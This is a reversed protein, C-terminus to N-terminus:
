GHVPRVAAAGAVPAEEAPSALRMFTGRVSIDRRATWGRRELIEAYSQLLNPWSFGRADVAYLVIGAASVEFRFGARGAGAEGHGKSLLVARARDAVTQNAREQEREAATPWREEGGTRPTAWLRISVPKCDWLRAPPLGRGARHVSFADVLERDWGRPDSDGGEAISDALDDVQDGGMYYLQERIAWYREERSFIVRVGEAEARRRIFRRVTVPNAKGQETDADRSMVADVVDLTVVGANCHRAFELVKLAM